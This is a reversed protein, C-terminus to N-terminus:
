KSQENVKDLREVLNQTIDVDVNRYFVARANLLVDLEKEKIIEPVIKEILPMMDKQIKREVKAKESDLRKGIQNIDEVKEQILESQEQKKANSWTLSETQAQKQLKQIEQGLENYRAFDSKFQPDDQLKALEDNAYQSRGIAAELDIVAVKHQAFAMAPLLVLMLFYMKRAILTM